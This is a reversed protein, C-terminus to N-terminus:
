LPNPPQRTLLHAQWYHATKAVSTIVNKIERDIRYEHSAPVFLVEGERRAMINEVLIARLMWAAMAENRCRVGVWGPTESLLTPLGSALTVGRRIEEVVRAYADPDASSQEATVAPLLRGRHPPGGAMALDCFSTWIENWPVRGDADYHLRANGMSQPKVADLEMSYESPLSELTRQHLRCLIPWLSDAAEADDVWVPFPRSRVAELYRGVIWGALVSSDLWDWSEKNLDTDCRSAWNLRRPWPNELAPSEEQIAIVRGVVSIPGAVRQAWYAAAVMHEIESDSAHQPAILELTSSNSNDGNRAHANPANAVWEGIDRMSPPQAVVLTTGPVIASFWAASRIQWPEPAARGIPILILRPPPFDTLAVMVQRLAEDFPEKERSDHVTPTDLRMWECRCELRKRISEVAAQLCSDSISIWPATVLVLVLDDQNPQM